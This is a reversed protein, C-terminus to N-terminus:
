EVDDYTWNSLNVFDLVPDHFDNDEEVYRKGQRKALKKKEKKKGLKHAFCIPLWSRFASM